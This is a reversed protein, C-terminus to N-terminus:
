TVRTVLDRVNQHTQQATQIPRKNIRRLIVPSTRLPRGHPCFWLFSGVPLNIASSNKGSFFSQCLSLNSMACRHFHRLRTFSNPGHCDAVGAVPFFLLLFHFDIPIDAPRPSASFTDDTMFPVPPVAPPLLVLLSINGRINLTSFAISPFLIIRGGLALCCCCIFDPLKTETFALVVRQGPVYDHTHTM